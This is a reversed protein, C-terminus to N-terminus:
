SYLWVSSPPPPPNSVISICTSQYIFWHIMGQFPGRLTKEFTMHSQSGSVYFITGASLNQALCEQQWNDFLDFFEQIRGVQAYTLQQFHGSVVDGNAEQFRRDKRGLLLFVCQDVWGLLNNKSQAIFPFFFLSM